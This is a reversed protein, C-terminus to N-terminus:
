NNAYKLFNDRAYEIRRAVQKASNTAGTTAKKFAEDLTWDTNSIPSLNPNERLALAAGVAIGEYFNVPTTKRGRTIGHPFCEHLYSFTKLFSERYNCNACTAQTAWETYDNLFDKVSHSFEKYRDLFAFFRLVYEQATGDNQQKEPLFVISCFDQSCSLEDIIEIFPGRFICERVEQDTLRIGGTNLREFLDFRVQKDSKDNLVTVKLPRDLLLTAVDEPLDSFFCGNLATLKDLGELRLPAKPLGFLQREDSEDVFNIISMSRQLGDVIEWYVPKDPDGSTAMFLNPIPIGLLLSEILTSQRTADWRFQRQYVPAIDIRKSKIRRVLEDASIDYADFDVKRRQESLQSRISQNNKM